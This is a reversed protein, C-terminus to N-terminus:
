LKNELRLAKLSESMVYPLLCENAQQAQAWMNNLPFLASATHNLSRLTLHQESQILKGFSM